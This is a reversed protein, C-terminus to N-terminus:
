EVESDVMLNKGKADRRTRSRNFFLWIATVVGLAVALFIAGWTWVRTWWPRKVVIAPTRDGPVLLSWRPPSVDPEHMWFLVTQKSTEPAFFRVEGDPAAWRWYATLLQHPQKPDVEMQPIPSQPDRAADQAIKLPALEDLRHQKKSAGLEIRLADAVVKRAEAEDAIMPNGGYDAVIRLRLVGDRLEFRADLFEAGHGLVLLPLLGAGGAILQFIFRLRRMM